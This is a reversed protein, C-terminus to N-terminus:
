GCSSSANNEEHRLAGKLPGGSTRDKSDACTRRQQWVANADADLRLDGLVQAELPSRINRGKRAAVEGSRDSNADERHVTRTRWTKCFLSAVPDKAPSTDLGELTSPQTVREARRRSALEAYLEPVVTAQGELTSEKLTLGRM